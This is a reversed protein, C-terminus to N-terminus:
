ECHSMAPIHETGVPEDVAKPRGDNDVFRRFRAALDVKSTDALLVTLSPVPTGARLEEYYVYIGRRLTYGESSELDQAVLCCNTGLTAKTNAWFVTAPTEALLSGVSVIRRGWYHEWFWHGPLREETFPPWQVEPVGARPMVACFPDPSTPTSKTYVPILATVADGCRWGFLSGDRPIPVGRTVVNVAVDPMTADADAAIEVTERTGRQRLSYLSRGDRRDHTLVFFRTGDGDSLVLLMSRVSGSATATRVAPPYRAFLTYCAEALSTTHMM